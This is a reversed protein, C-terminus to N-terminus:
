KSDGWGGDTRVNGGAGAEASESVAVLAIAQERSLADISKVLEDLMFDRFTAGEPSFIFRLAARTRSASGTGTM